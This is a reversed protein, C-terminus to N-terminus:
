CTVDIEQHFTVAVARAAAQHKGSGDGRPHPSFHEDNELLLGRAERHRLLWFFHGKRLAIPNGHVHTNRPDGIKM